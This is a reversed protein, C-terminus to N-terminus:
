YDEALWEMVKTYVTLKTKYNGEEVKRLTKEGIGILKHAESKTLRLDARKRRVAKAQAETITLM